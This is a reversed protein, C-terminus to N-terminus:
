ESPPVRISDDAVVEAAQAEKAEDARQQRRPYPPPAAGSGVQAAGGSMADPSSPRSRTRGMVPPRPLSLSTTGVDAGPQGQPHVGGNSSADRLSSKSLMRSKRGSKSADDIGDLSLKSPMRGVRSSHSADFLSPLEDPPAARGLCVEYYIKLGTLYMLSSFEFAMPYFVAWLRFHFYYIMLTLLGVTYVAQWLYSIDATSKRSHALYIQPLLATALVVGGVFGIINYPDEWEGM